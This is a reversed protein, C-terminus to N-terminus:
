SSDSTRKGNATYTFSLSELAIDDLKHLPPPPPLPLDKLCYWLSCSGTLSAPSFRLFGNLTSGFIGIFIKNWQGGTSGEM